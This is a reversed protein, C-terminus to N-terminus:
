HRSGEGGGTEPGQEDPGSKLLGEMWQNLAEERESEPLHDFQKMVESHLRRIEDLDKQIEPTMVFPRDHSTTESTEPKQNM